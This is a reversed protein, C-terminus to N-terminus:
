KGHVDPDAAVMCSVKEQAQIRKIDCIITGVFQLVGVRDPLRM